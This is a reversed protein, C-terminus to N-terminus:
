NIGVVEVEFTLEQGALPHNFDVVVADEKVEVIKGTLAQGSPTQMQIMMGIQPEMDEGLQTKPVEIIADKNVTGYADEPGVIVTKKEGVKMGELRNELGPIIMQEGQTYELPERGESSDVVQGKVTLTYNLKVVKGKEIMAEEGRAPNTNLLVTISFVLCWLVKQM